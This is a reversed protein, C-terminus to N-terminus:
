YSGEWIKATLHFDKPMITVRESHIACLNADLIRGIIYFKSSEQLAMIAEAQWRLDDKHSVDKTVEKVLRLFPLKPILLKTEKRLERIEMLARIGPNRWTVQKKARNAQQGSQLAAAVAPNAPVQRDTHIVCARQKRGSTPVAQDSEETVSTLDQFTSASLLPDGQKAREVEPDRWTDRNRVAVLTVTASGDARKKPTAKRGGKGRGKGGYKLSAM